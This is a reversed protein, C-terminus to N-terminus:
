PDERGGDTVATANMLADMQGEVDEADTADSGNTDLGADSLLERDVGSLDVKLRKRGGRVDTSFGDTRAARDMLDKAKRKSPGGDFVDGRVTEVSLASLGNTRGEAKRVAEIRLGEVREEDSLDAYPLRDIAPGDLVTEDDAYERAREEPVFLDPNNPHRAYDLRNLVEPLWKERMHDTDGGRFPMAELAEGFDGATFAGRGGDDPMLNKSLWRPKREEATLGRDDGPDLDALQKEAEPVAKELKETLRGLLGGDLYWCVVARLIEYNPVGSEKAYAAMDEKVGERVRVGVRRGGEDSARTPPSKERTLRGHTGVARALRNTYDEAPHEDRYEKWAQEIEFGAYLATANHEEEVTELFRDWEPPRKWNLPVRDASRV